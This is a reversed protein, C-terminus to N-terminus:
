KKKLKKLSCSSFDRLRRDTGSASVLSSVLSTSLSTLIACGNFARVIGLCYNIWERDVQIGGSLVLLSFIEQMGRGLVQELQLECMAMRKGNHRVLHEGMNAVQKSRMSAMSHRVMSTSKVKSGNTSTTFAVVLLLRFVSGKSIVMKLNM